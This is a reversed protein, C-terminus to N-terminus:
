ISTEHKVESQQLQELENIRARWQDREALIAGYKENFDSLAITNGIVTYEYHKTVIYDTNALRRKLLEIERCREDVIANGLKMKLAALGQAQENTLRPM